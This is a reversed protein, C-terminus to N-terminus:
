QKQPSITDMRIKGTRALATSSRLVLASPLTFRAGAPIVANKRYDSLIRVCERGILHRPQRITTLPPDTTAAAQIDDYGIVSVDEPVRLGLEKLTMIAAIAVTDNQCLLATPCEPLSYIRRVAAQVDADQESTSEIWGPAPAIGVQKLRDLFHEKRLNSESHFYKATGPPVTLAGIHRHGLEFLHGVAAMVGITEDATVSIIHALDSTGTMFLQPLCTEQLLLEYLRDNVGNKIYFYVLGTLRSVVHEIWDEVSTGTDQGEPPSLFTLSFGAESAADMITAFYDM